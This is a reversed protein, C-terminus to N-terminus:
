NKEDTMGRVIPAWVSPLMGTRWKHRPPNCEGGHCCIDREKEGDRFLYISQRDAEMDIPCSSEGAIPVRNLDDRWNSPAATKRGRWILFFRNGERSDGEIKELAAGELRIRDPKRPITESNRDTETTTIM